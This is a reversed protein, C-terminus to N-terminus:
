PTPPLHTVRPQVADGVPEPRRTPDLDAALHALDMDYLDTCVVDVDEGAGVRAFLECVPGLGGRNEVLEWAMLFSAYSAMRYRIKDVEDDPDPDGALVADATAGDMIVSQRSRYMALYNLHHPGDEALYSALGQVLWAPLARGGALDDLLWTAVLHHAAHAALDRKILVPGSEVTAAGDTLRYLRHFAYGTLDRYMDLNDPNVVRLTDARDHDLVLALDRRAWDLMEVFPLIAYAEYGANFRVDFGRYRIRDAEIELDDRPLVRTGRVLSLPGYTEGAADEFPVYGPYRYVHMHDPYGASALEEPTFRPFTSSRSLRDLQAPHQPLDAAGVAAATVIMATALLLPIRVIRGPTEQSGQLM